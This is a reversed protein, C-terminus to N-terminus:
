VPDIEEPEETDIDDQKSEDLVESQTDSEEEIPEKHLEDASM